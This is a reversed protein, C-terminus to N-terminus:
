RAKKGAKKRERERKAYIEGTFPDEFWLAVSYVALVELTLLFGAPKGFWLATGLFSLTSGYYMPAGTVNFPFSTVRDEMLIGFYDGLFTGTIGLAWMSSLVLTNGAALLAYALYTAIPTDLLPHSPQHRLAREYLLDRFIGLSFITGALVYCALRSNGGFAKTMFKHRYETPLSPPPHNTPPQPPSPQPNQPLLYWQSRRHCKWFIPNFAISAASVALSKQDFDILGKSQQQSKFLRDM